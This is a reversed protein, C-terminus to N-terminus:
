GGLPGNVVVLVTRRRLDDRVGIEEFAMELLIRAFLTSFDVNRSVFDEAIEALADLAHCLLLGDVFALAAHTAAHAELAVGAHDVAWLRRHLADGLLLPGDATVDVGVVVHADAAVDAGVDARSSVNM